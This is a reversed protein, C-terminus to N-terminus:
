RVLPKRSLVVSSIASAMLLCSQRLLSVYELTSPDADFLSSYLASFQEALSQFQQVCQHFKREVPNGIAMAPPPITHLAVCTSLLQCHASLLDAHASLYHLPFSSPPSSSKALMMSNYVVASAKCLAPILSSAAAPSSVLLNQAASFQQLASLWNRFKVVTIMKSLKSYIPQALEHFGMMSARRAVQYALWLHSPHRLSWLRALLSPLTSSQFSLRQPSGCAGGHLELLVTVLPLMVEQCNERSDLYSMLKPTTHAWTDSTHTAISVLARCVVDAHAGSFQPLLMLLTDLATISITANTALKVLSSLLVKFARLSEERSFDMVLLSEVVVEGVEQVEQSSDGQNTIGSTTALTINTVVGLAYVAINRNGSYCSLFLSDKLTTMHHVALSASLRLLVSFGLEKERQQVAKETVALLAQIMERSWTHPVRSALQHLQQLATLRVARRSDSQAYSLLLKVQEPVHVVTAMALETLTHFIAAVFSLSPYSPLLRLCLERVQSATSIDRHMQKLIPILKLKMEVPTTLGQVMSAIKECVGAAFTGSHRCLCTTAFIAAEVEVQDNSDMSRHISHHVNKREAIISAISGFVRLTIARAVPDNSHIVSFIRRLFEDVSTIKNLHKESVQLVKLTTLRLLNTGNRFVDALKLFAANILIPFPFRDVLVPFKVIAECQEGVRSSRLGKDVEMLATNAEQRMDNTLAETM